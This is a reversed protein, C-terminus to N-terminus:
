IQKQYSIATLCSLRMLFSKKLQLHYSPLTYQADQLRHLRQHCTITVKTRQLLSMKTAIMKDAGNGLALISGCGIGRRAPLGPTSCDNDKNTLRQRAQMEKREAQRIMLRLNDPREKDAEKRHLVATRAQIDELKQQLLRCTDSPSSPANPSGYKTYVTNPVDLTNTSSLGGLAANQMLSGRQDQNTNDNCRRGLPRFDEINGTQPQKSRSLLGVDGQDRHYYDDRRSTFRSTRFFLEDNNQHPVDQIQQNQQAQSMHRVTWHSRMWSGPSQVTGRERKGAM